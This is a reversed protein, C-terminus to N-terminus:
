RDGGERDLWGALKRDNDHLVEVLWGQDGPPRAAESAFLEYGVLEEPDPESSPPGQHRERALALLQAYTRADVLLGRINRDSVGDSHASELADYVAGLAREAEGVTTRYAFTEYDEPATPSAAGDGRYMGPAASWRSLKAEIPRSDRPM